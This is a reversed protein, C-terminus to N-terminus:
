VNKLTAETSVQEVTAEETRRGGEERQLAAWRYTGDERPSRLTRIDEDTIALLVQRSDGLDTSVAVVRGLTHLDAALRDISEDRKIGNQASEQATVLLTFILSLTIPLTRKM